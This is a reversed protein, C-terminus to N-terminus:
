GLFDDEEVEVAIGDFATEADERGGGLRDGDKTKMIHELGAAIGKSMDLAYPYFNVVAYGYSGSYLDDKETIPSRSADVIGPQRSSNAGIYFSDAYAEDDEREVDGDHLPTKLNSPIKGGFKAKGQEKALAIADNIKKLLATNKKPIILSASYKPTGNNVSKAEWVSLYSFRVPGIVVKTSKETSM